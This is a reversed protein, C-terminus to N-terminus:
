YQTFMVDVLNIISNILNISNEEHVMDRTFHSISHQIHYISCLLLQFIHFSPPKVFLFDQPFFDIYDSLAVM